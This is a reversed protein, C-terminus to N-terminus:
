RPQFRFFMYVISFAIVILIGTFAAIGFIPPIKMLTMLEGITDTMIGFVSWVINLFAKGAKLLFGFVDTIGVTGELAGKMSASANHM